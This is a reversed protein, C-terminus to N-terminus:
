DRYWVPTFRSHLYLHCMKLDPTTGHASVVNKIKVVNVNKSCWYVRAELLTTQWANSRCHKITVKKEKTELRMNLWWKLSTLRISHEWALFTPGSKTARNKHLHFDWQNPKLPTVDTYVPIVCSYVPELNNLTDM